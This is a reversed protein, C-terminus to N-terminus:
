PLSGPEIGPRPARKKSKTSSAAAGVPPVVGFAECWAAGRLLSTVIGTGPGLASRHCTVQRSEERKRV